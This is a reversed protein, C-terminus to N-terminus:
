LANRRTLWTAVLWLAALPFAILVAFIGAGGAYAKDGYHRNSFQRNIRVALTPQAALVAEPADRVIVRVEYSTGAETPFAGIGRALKGELVGFDDPASLLTSWLRRKISKNSLYLYDLSDGEAVVTGGTNISWAVDMPASDLPLLHQTMVDTPVKETFQLELECPQSVEATFTGTLAVESVQELPFYLPYWTYARNHAIALAMLALGGVFFVVAAGGWYTKWRVFQM